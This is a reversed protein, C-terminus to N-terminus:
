ILMWPLRSSLVTRFYFTAWFLLERYIVSVPHASSFLNFGHCFSLFFFDESNSESLFLSLSISFLSCSFTAPHHLFSSNVCWEFKKFFWLQQFLEVFCILAICFHSVVGTSINDWFHPRSVWSACYWPKEAKQMINVNVTCFCHHAFWQGRVHISATAGSHRLLWKIRWQWM